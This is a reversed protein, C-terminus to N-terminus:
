QREEFAIDHLRETNGNTEVQFSTDGEAQEHLSFLLEIPGDLAIGDADELVGDYSTRGSQAIVPPSALVLALCLVSGHAIPRATFSM